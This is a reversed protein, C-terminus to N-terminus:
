VKWDPTWCVLWEAVMDELFSNFGLFQKQWIQFQKLEMCVTVIVVNTDESGNV